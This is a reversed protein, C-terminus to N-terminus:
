HLHLETPGATASQNALNIFCTTSDPFCPTGAQAFASANFVASGGHFPPGAPDAAVTVNITRQTGDCPFLFGPPSSGASGTGHAIKRGAAQEVGVFASESLLTMGPDFASCSVSVPMTISVRGLLTPTGFSVTMAQAASATAILAVAM